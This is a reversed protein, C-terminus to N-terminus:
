KRASRKMLSLAAINPPRWTTCTTTMVAGSAPSPRTPQPFSWGEHDFSYGWDAEQETSSLDWAKPEVKKVDDANFGKLSAIAKAKTEVSVFPMATLVIAFQDVLDVLKIRKEPSNFGGFSVQMVLDLQNGVMEGKIVFSVLGPNRFSFLQVEDAGSKTSSTADTQLLGLRHAAAHDRHESLITQELHKGYEMTALYLEQDRWVLEPQEPTESRNQLLSATRDMAELTRDDEVSHSGVAVGAPNRYTEYASYINNDTFDTNDGFRKVLRLTRSFLMVGGSSIVTRLVSLDVGGPQKDPWCVMTDIDALPAPLIDFELGGVFALVPQMSLSYSVTVCKEIAMEWTYFSYGAWKTLHDKDMMWSNDCPVAWPELKIFDDEDNVQWDSQAVAGNSGSRTKPAFALCSATDIEKGAFQTILKTAYNGDNDHIEFEFLSDSDGGYDDGEQLLSTKSTKSARKMKALKKAGPGRRTHKKIALNKTAHHIAPSEGIRPFKSTAAESLLSAKEEIM